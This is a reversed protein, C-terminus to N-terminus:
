CAISRRPRSRFRRLAAGRSCSRSGFDLLKPEGDPTVLINGAEPRPPVVLHQHAYQVAACIQQFLILGSGTSLGRDHCYELLPGGEVHEM